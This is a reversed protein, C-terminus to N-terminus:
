EFCKHGSEKLLNIMTENHLLAYKIAQSVTLDRNKCSSVSDAGTWLVIQNDLSEKLFCIREPSPDEFGPRNPAFGSAVIYIVLRGEIFNRYADKEAFDPNYIEAHEEFACDPNAFVSCSFFTFTLFLIFRYM